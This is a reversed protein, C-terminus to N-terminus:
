LRLADTDADTVKRAPLANSRVADAAAETTAEATLFTSRLREAEPDDAEAADACLVTSRVRAVAVVIVVDTMAFLESPVIKVLLALTDAEDEIDATRVISRRLADTM